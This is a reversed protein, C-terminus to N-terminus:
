TWTRFARLLRQHNGDDLDDNLRRLLATATRMQDVYDVCHPCIALHEELEAARGEPMAGEMWDTIVDVLESCRVGVEIM